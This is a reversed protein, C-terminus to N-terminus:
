KENAVKSPYTARYSHGYGWRYSTPFIPHGGVRVGTEMMWGMFAGKSGGICRGFEADAERRAEADGGCWYAIDHEVCCSQNWEADPFRSCGDTTFARIPQLRRDETALYCQVAARKSLIFAKAKDSRYPEITHETAHACSTAAIGVALLIQFGRAHPSRKRLTSRIAHM